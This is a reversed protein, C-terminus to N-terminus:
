LHKANTLQLKEEYRDTFTFLQNCYSLEMLPPDQMVKIGGLYKQGTEVSNMM